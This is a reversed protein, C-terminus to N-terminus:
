LGLRKTMDAIRYKKAMLKAMSRAGGTPQYRIGGKATCFWSGEANGHVMFGAYKARGMVTVSKAIGPHQTAELSFLFEEFDPYAFSVRHTDIHCHDKDFDKAVAAKLHAEDLGAYKAIAMDILTKLKVADDNVEAGILFGFM